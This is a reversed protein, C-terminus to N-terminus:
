RAAGADRLVRLAADPDARFAEAEAEVDLRVVSRAHRRATTTKGTARPGAILLAPLEAFLEGLRADALRPVYGSAVVVGRYRKQSPKRGTKATWGSGSKRISAVAKANALRGSAADSRRREERAEQERAQTRKHKVHRTKPCGTVAIKTTQKIEAGNQGVLETPM